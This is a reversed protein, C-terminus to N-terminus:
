VAPDYCVFEVRNGEPDSVFLSRWHFFPFEKATVELGLRELQRRRRDFDAADIMFALQDLTSTQPGVELGRDFSVLAQPHGEIGEAVRFFVYGDGERWVELGVVDRYVYSGTASRTANSPSIARRTLSKSM